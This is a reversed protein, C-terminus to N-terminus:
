LQNADRLINQVARLLPGRQEFGQEGLDSFALLVKKRCRHLLGTVLSFLAEQSHVVEDMDTWKKGVQWTSKLVFPHTVPQYIREAWSRSGIDLWIQIDVSHNAALFTFAPAILVANETQSSWSRLYQAALLGSRITQLYEFGLDSIYEAVAWRFKQISEMLNATIEGASFNQHFGFGRRSLLEGFVRSFFHDLEAPEEKQYDSIWTRLADYKQGLTFSVRDQWSGALDSFPLLVPKSDKIKFLMESLLQARVLDFGDISQMLMYAIEFTSPLFDKNMEVWYPHAMIALTILSQTVPEDLLSRSPRLSRAEIGNKNLLHAISFRLSDSLFPSLIAIEGPQTSQNNVLDVIQEVISAIMQPYFRNTSLQFSNEFNLIKTRIKKSEKIRATFISDLRQIQPEMVFSSKFEITEDCLDRLAAASSPEAGMFTRFGGNEDFILTTSDAQIMWDALIQHMITTDEEINEAIIHKYMDLLYNRCISDPWIRDRFLDIQLSYDLLNHNLCFERFATACHQADDFVKMQAPEGSWSNKLRDGIELHSFGSIAAKNLNDIVQSLLRNREIVVSSFFGQDLLPFVIKAVYYATTELTLFIPEKKPNTFGGEEAILPWFLEITRRALGGLTVGSFSGKLNERLSNMLEFYPSLLTRQPAFVLISEAPIGQELLFALRNVAATTKGSGAIGYLFIRRNIPELLCAKQQVSLPINM